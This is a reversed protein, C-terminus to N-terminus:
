DIAGDFFGVHCFVVDHSHLGEEGFLLEDISEGLGVRDVCIVVEKLSHSLEGVETVLCVHITLGEVFGTFSLKGCNESVPALLSAFSVRAISLVPSLSEVPHLLNPAIHVCVTASSVRAAIVLLSSPRIISPGSLLTGL